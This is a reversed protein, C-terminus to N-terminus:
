SKDACFSLGHEALLDRLIRLAKPGLGHLALLEKESYNCLQDLTKIGAGQLARHAPQGIKVSLLEIM